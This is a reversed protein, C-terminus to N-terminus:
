DVWAGRGFEHTYSKNRVRGQLDRAQLTFLVKRAAGAFPKTFHKFSGDGEVDVTEGNVSLSCGPDVRGVLELSRGFSVIKYLEIVPGRDGREYEAPPRRFPRDKAAVKAPTGADASQRLTGAEPAPSQVLNRLYPYSVLCILAIGAFSLLRRRILRRETDSASSGPM